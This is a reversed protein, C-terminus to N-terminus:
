DTDLDFEAKAKAFLNAAEGRSGLSLSNASLQFNDLAFISQRSATLFNVLQKEEVGADKLQLAYQQTKGLEYFQSLSNLKGLKTTLAKNRDLYHQLQETAGKAGLDNSHIQWKGGSLTLEVSQEIGLRAAMDVLDAQVPRLNFAIMNDLTQLSIGGEGSQLRKLADDIQGSQLSSQINGLETSINNKQWAVAKELAKDAKDADALYDFLNLGTTQIQM